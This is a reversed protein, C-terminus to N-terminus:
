KTRAAGDGLADDVWADLQDRSVKGEHFQLLRGDGDYVFTAPLAGSWEEHVADIFAMDDGEKIYSEFDVGLDALFRAAGERQDPFDGSVLLLRLGDTARQRGVALLDPMEERCPLCWTAWVNLVVARAGPARVRELVAPGDAPVVPPLAEVAAAAATGAPEGAACAVLGGLGTLTTLGALATMLAALAALAVRLTTAPRLTPPVRLSTM